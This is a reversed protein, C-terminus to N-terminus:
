DNPHIQLADVNKKFRDYGIVSDGQEKQHNSNPGNPLPIPIQKKKGLDDLDV